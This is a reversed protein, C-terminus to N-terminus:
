FPIEDKDDKAPAFAESANGGGDIPPAPVDSAPVYGQVRTRTKSPDMRDPEDRIVVGVPKGILKGLYTQSFRYGTGEEKVEADSPRELGLADTLQVVKGVTSPIVVIWDRISGEANGVRLEIQPHGGSSTGTGDIEIVKVFHDGEPLMTGTSVEWAEETAFPNEAM